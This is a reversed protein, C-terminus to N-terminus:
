HVSAGRPGGDPQPTSVPPMVFDKGFMRELRELQMALTEWSKALDAFAMRLKETNATASLEACQLAHRRCEAPDGRVSLEKYARTLTGGPWLKSPRASGRMYLMGPAKSVSWVGILEATLRDRFIWTIVVLDVFHFCRRQWPTDRM